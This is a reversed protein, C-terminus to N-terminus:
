KRRSKKRKGLKFIERIVIILAALVILGALSLGTIKLPKVWVAPKDRVKLTGEVTTSKGLYVAAIETRYDGSLANTDIYQELRKSEWAKLDASPTRFTMGGTENTLRVEAYVEKVDSNWGSKVDVGFKQLGDRYLQKTFNTVNVFLSGIRFTRNIEYTEWYDKDGYTIVADAIYNDPMMGTTDLRKGFDQEQGSALQVEPFNVATVKQMNSNLINVVPLITIEEKGRNYVKLEVPMQENVNADRVSLEGEIYKGPYPVYLYIVARIIIATGITGLGSPQERAAIYITNKGVTDINAPLNVAIKFTGGGVLNQKNFTVYQALDGQAYMDIMKEPNDSYVTYEISIRENPVFNYRTIAPSIGLSASVANLSILTAFVLGLLIVTSKKM